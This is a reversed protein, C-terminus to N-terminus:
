LRLGDFLVLDDSSGTIKMHQKTRGGVDESRLVEVAAAALNGLCVTDGSQAPITDELTLSAGNWGLAKLIGYTFIGHELSDSEWSQEYPKCATLIYLGDNSIAPSQSFLLELTSVSNASTAYITSDTTVNNEGILSGSYCFDCILAKKGPFCNLTSILDEGTVYDVYLKPGSPSLVALGCNNQWKNSDYYSYHSKNESGNNYGHSSVFVVLLDDETALAGFSLIKADIRTRTPYHDDSRTYDDSFDFLECERGTENCLAQFCLGIQRADARTYKLKTVSEDSGPVLANEYGIGITVIYMKGQTAPARFLDCGCLCLLIVACVAFAPILHRKM